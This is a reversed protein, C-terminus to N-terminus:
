PDLPDFGGYAVLLRVVNEVLIGASEQHMASIRALDIRQHLAELGFVGLDMSVDSGKSKKTHISFM